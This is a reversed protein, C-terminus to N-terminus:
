PMGVEASTDSSLIQTVTRDVAEQWPGMRIGFTEALRRCDLVSNQPRRAATPYDATAIPTLKPRRGTISAQGAVIREAFGFWSTAGSGVLHFTGYTADASLLRPVAALMAQALDAASTPSGFQDAVIRLEDREASLRIVTKVFNDGYRGYLWATRLILHRPAAQRVAAEGAAKSRGYVGIPAVPDDELYPGIKTGDFVYDTSIHIIPIGASDALEALVKAGIANIRWASQPESEARDVKTYAAANIVLGPRLQTIADGVAAPDVIDVEKMDPGVIRIQADRAAAILERGLQGNAGFLLIV